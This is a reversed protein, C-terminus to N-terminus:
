LYHFSKKQVFYEFKDCVMIIFIFSLLLFLIIIIFQYYNM